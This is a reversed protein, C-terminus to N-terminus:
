QGPPLILHYIAYPPLEIQVEDGYTVPRQYGIGNSEMDYFFLSAYQRASFNKLNVTVNQSRDGNKNLLMLHLNGTEPDISAHAGVNAHDSSEASVSESGFGNGQGDYNTYLKFAHYGPTNPAPYQWYYAYYLDYRGFIGLADALAVAGNPTDDAGWNWESIGFKTGPYHQEILELMRPLIYVAENIWTEDVYTPDWLSRTSRMRWAQREASEAGEWSEEYLDEPYYHIDLVDLLRQGTQEEHLRMQELFWPIFVQNDHQARDEYGAASEWYFHWCCSVPGVTEVEPLVEKVVAAYTLFKDRIEDYTTCDPHVDYHSNGWLEPENDMAAFRIELNNDRIHLMWDRIDAPTSPISTENPDAIILPNNCSINPTPNYCENDENRFSCSWADKAVWGLTPITLRTALGHEASERLFEDAVMGEQGYTGNVFIYDHAANWLNGARWNYRSSNNGGWNQGSPNLDALIWSPARAIGYILPSIPHRNLETDVNVTVDASFPPAVQPTPTARVAVIVVSAESPMSKPTIVEPANTTLEIPERPNVPENESIALLKPLNAGILVALVMLSFAGFLAVIVGRNLSKM